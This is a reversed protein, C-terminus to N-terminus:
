KIEVDGYQHEVIGFEFTASTDIGSATIAKWDFSKGTKNIITTLQTYSPQAKAFARSAITTVTTPITVTTLQTAYFAETEIREVGEPIIVNKISGTWSFTSAGIVKLQVGEKIAPIVVNNREAGGYDVLTTYDIGQATRRYIFAQNAPLSNYSFAKAGISTVSDPIVVSKLRAGYFSWASITKLEVGNVIAPIVVNEANGGYTIINSYDISGNSNRKYIYAQNQPLTNESFSFTEINTVSTPIVLSTLKNSRFASSRIEKLGEPLNISTLNNAYFANSEIITVTSPIVVSNIGQYAFALSGITKLPVGERVAPIVINKEGGIYGTLVSYDVTGNSNKKYVFWKDESINNNRFSNSTFSTVFSVDPIETFLNNSFASNGITRVSSPIIVTKLKNNQFAYSGITKLSNPLIVSTIGKGSFSYDSITTVLLGDITSPIIVDKPCSASYTSISIENNLITYTYCNKSEEKTIDLSAQEEILNGNKDLIVIKSRMGVPKRNSIIMKNDAVIDENKIEGTKKLEVKQGSEDVSTWYYEYGDGTYVLVVYADIWNGFPSNGGKEMKENAVHVYYTTDSDFFSYQLSNVKNRVSTEYSKITSIYASKRSELIYNTVSPVAILLLVGLIIIVALIEILTFGKNNKM